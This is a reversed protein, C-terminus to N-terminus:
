RPTTNSMPDPRDAPVQQIELLYGVALVAMSIPTYTLFGLYDGSPLVINTRMLGFWGAAPVLLLLAVTRSVVPTRLSALVFLLFSVALLLFGLLLAATWAPADAPIEPYGEMQLTVGILWLLLVTMLLGSLIKVAVGALSLRPTHDSLRPSLGLLGFVPVLPVIGGYGTKLASHPRVGAFASRGEITANSFLLVGAILFVKANWQELSRWASLTSGVM